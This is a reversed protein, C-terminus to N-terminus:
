DLVQVMVHEGRRATTIDEGLVILADALVFSSLIGASQKKAPTVFFKGDEEELHARLFYRIGNRKEIDARLVAPVERMSLDSRGSMRLIAPRVFQLFTVMSSVPNGPLGFVPTRGKMGFALPKGPRIAVKWLVIRVGLNELVSRVFDYDGVSVGGSVILMDFALGERLKRETEARDDRAIGLSHPLGGYKTVQACLSYTNSNRIKGPSQEEAIGILEDGTAVVAVRPRAVVSVEPIGLSALIGIEQPRIVKGRPVVLDGVVVDEARRRINEGPKAERFINVRGRGGAWSAEMETAEVRVVADAGSPLPAGTMIRVATGTAVKIPSVYGARVEGIVELLAPASRSAGATDRSRVAYGDMASNEFPPLDAGAHVDCASVRGLAEATETLEADLEDVAALIRDVAEKFRIM